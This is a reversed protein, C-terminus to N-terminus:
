RFLGDFLEARRDVLCQTRQQGEIPICQAVLAAFFKESHALPPELRGIM